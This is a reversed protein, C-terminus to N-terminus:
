IQEKKNILVHLSLLKIILEDTVPLCLNLKRGALVDFNCDRSLFDPSTFQNKM